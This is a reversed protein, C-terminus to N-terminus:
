GFLLTVNIRRLLYEDKFHFPATAHFLRSDFLIARNQRYSFNEFQANNHALFANTKETDQNYDAFSWDEPAAVNYVQLGGTEPDLNAHDPTLWFNVNVKAGDAHIGIGERQSDYKYAWMHKLPAGEFVKPMVERLEHAVQYLLECNFGDDMYAGLYGGPRNDDHWISSKQCFHLLAELADTRLFTDVSIVSPQRNLYDFELREFDLEPNLVEDPFAPVPSVYFNRKHVLLIERHQAKSLRIEQQGTYRELLQAYVQEIRKFSPPLYRGKLLFQLQLYDHRLKSWSTKTKRPYLEVPDQHPEREPLDNWAIGRRLRYAYDFLRCAEKWEGARLYAYAKYVYIEDYAPDLTLARELVQHAGRWDQQERLVHSWHCYLDPNGPTMRLAWKFHNEAREPEKLSLLGLKDHLSGLAVVSLRLGALCMIFHLVNLPLTDAGPIVWPGFLPQDQIPFFLWTLCCAVALAGLTILTGWTLYLAWLVARPNNKWQEIRHTIQQTDM